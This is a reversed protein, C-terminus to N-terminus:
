SDYKLYKRAALLLAARDGAAVRRMLMVKLSARKAARGRRLSEGFRRKLTRPHVGLINAIRATTYGEEALHAVVLAPIPIAPRGPLKRPHRRRMAEQGAALKERSIM